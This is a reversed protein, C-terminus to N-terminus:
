ILEINAEKLYKDNLVKVMSKLLNRRIDLAEPLTPDQHAENIKTGVIFNIVDSELFIKVLESAPDQRLKDPDKGSKLIELTKNLTLTGETVLDAGSMKSKPPIDPWLNSLDLGIHKGTERAIINATTGGCIVKRGNYEQFKRALVADNKKDFPPGTVVLTKRPKRFSVVACSIDDKAKLQDNKLAREVVKRSLYRASIGPDQRCNDVVCASAGGNMWGLPMVDSGMGSQTVGDSFFVIRDNEKAIFDSYFLEREGTTVTKITFREKEIKIEKGDRILLYPPNDYEIVRVKRQPQIDIITFTSYGIKRTSCVPLTAMIIEAAKQPDIDSTVYKMAMTATLTALVNAKIGSGLGDALICITRESGKDRHSLFVDGAATQGAKNEQSFDVEVFVEETRTM